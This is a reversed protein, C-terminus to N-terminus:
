PELTEALRKVFEAPGCALQQELSEILKANPQARAQQLDSATIM